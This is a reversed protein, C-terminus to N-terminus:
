WPASRDGRFWSQRDTGQRGRPIRSQPLAPQLAKFVVDTLRAALEWGGVVAGPRKATCCLGDKGDLHIRSLFGDNVPVRNDVLCRIVFAIACLAMSRTCNM